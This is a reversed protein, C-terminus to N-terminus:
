RFDLSALFAQIKQVTFPMSIYGSAGLERAEHEFDPTNKATVFVVQPKRRLKEGSEKLILRTAEIGDMLPMKIDMLILDFDQCDLARQVAMRGNDVIEIEKVGSKKLMARLIKQNIINDDSILVKLADNRKPASYQSTAVAVHEHNFVESPSHDNLAGYSVAEVTSKQTPDNLEDGNNADVSTLTAVRHHSSNSRCCRKTRPGDTGCDFVTEGAAAEGWKLSALLEKIKKLNFPKAIYGSVGMNNAQQELGLGVNATAFVVHPRKKCRGLSDEHLIIRTAEVGDMVPMQVDMLILDFDGTELARDVAKKGDDVAEVHKVGAKTLMKILVKRNVANDDAVLVKLFDLESPSADSITMNGIGTISHNTATEMFRILSGVFASPILHILSRFHGHCLTDKVIYHPGFTLMTTGPAAEAFAECVGRSYLDENILCVYTYRKLGFSDLKHVYDVLAQCSPLEVVDLNYDHVLSCPLRHDDDDNVFIIRTNRLVQSLQVIDAPDRHFPLDVTFESWQGLESNVSITGGMAKVLTSTIALGLGTGDHLSQCRDNTQMFPLFIRHFEASDIGKGYDKVVFRLFNDQSYASTPGAGTLDDSYITFSNNNEVSSTQSEEDSSLMGFQDLVMIKLEIREGGEKSFKVANGLLNYLIQQLRRGDTNIIKPVLSDYHTCLKLNRGKAKVEVSHVVSDLTEQLDTPQINIEANGGVLKSYDLIDSVIASLLEGSNVIMRMSDLQPPSLGSELLLSSLGVICNLPTRIEHSMCAFNNLQAEAAEIAARNAKALRASAVQLDSTGQQVKQELKEILASNEKIARQAQMLNSCTATLPELFEVDEALFGWPERTNAIGLFGIVKDTAPDVFPIGMFNLISLHGKPIGSAPTNSIIPEKHALLQGWLCGSNRFKFKHESVLAQTAQDWDVNTFAHPLIYTGQEDALVEGIIGIEAKMLDLLKTLLSCFADRSEKKHLFDRQVNSIHDLLSLRRNCDLRKDRDSRKPKINMAKLMEVGFREWVMKKVEEECSPKDSENIEVEISIDIM